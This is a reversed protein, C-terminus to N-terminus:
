RSCFPSNHAYGSEWTLKGKMHVHLIGLSIKQEPALGFILASLTTRSIKVESLHRLRFDSGSNLSVLFFAMVPRSLIYMCMMISKTINYEELHFHLLVQPLRKINNQPPM